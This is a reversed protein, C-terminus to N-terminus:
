LNPSADGAVKLGFINFVNLQNQIEQTDKELRGIAQQCETLEINISDLNSKAIAIELGTQELMAKTVHVGNLSGPTQQDQLSQLELQTQGLRNKLLDIQQTVMKTKDPYFDEDSLLDEAHSVSCLCIFSASVVALINFNLLRKLM